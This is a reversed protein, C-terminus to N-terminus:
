LTLDDLSLGLLVVEAVGNVHWEVGDAGQVAEPLWSPVGAFSLRDGRRAPDFDVIVDLMGDVTLMFHDRGREGAMVDEGDGDRITDRGAGGAIYDNGFGGDIVDNGGEGSLDDNGTNGEIRDGRGGGTIFDDGGNGILVDARGKGILWDARGDGELPARGEAVQRRDMLDDNPAEDMAPPYFTSATGVLLKTPDAAYIDLERAGWNNVTGLGDETLFEWTDGDTSTLIDFGLSKDFTGIYMVDEGPGGSTDVASSWIYANKPNGFGDATVLTWADADVPNGPRDAFTVYAVAAAGDDDATGYFLKGNAVWMEIVSDDNFPNEMLGLPNGDEDAGGSEGVRHIRSGDQRTFSHPTVEEGSWVGAEEVYRYLRVPQEVIVGSSAGFYLAQQGSPEEVVQLMTIIDIDEVIDILVWEGTLPDYSWLAGGSADQTGMVLVDNWVVISRYGSNTSGPASPGTTIQDWTDGRDESVWFQATDDTAAGPIADNTLGAFLFTRATGDDDVTIQRMERVGAGSFDPATSAGLVQTWEGDRLRYIGFDSDELDAGYGITSMVARRDALDEPTLLGADLRFFFKMYGLADTNLYNTGVLIDGDMQEVSWAYRLSSNGFGRAGETLDEVAGTVPDYVLIQLGLKETSPAAGPLLLAESQRPVETLWAANGILSPRTGTDGLSLSSVGLPFASEFDPM